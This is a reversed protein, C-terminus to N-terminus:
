TQKGSPVGGSRPSAKSWIELRREGTPAERCSSAGSWFVERPEARKDWLRPMNTHIIEM